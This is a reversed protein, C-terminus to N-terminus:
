QTKLPVIQAGMRPTAEYIGKDQDSFIAYHCSDSTDKLTFTYSTSDTYFQLRFGAPTPSVNLLQAFPRYKPQGTQPPVIVAEAFNIQQAMKLAQERRARQNPQESPGHLCQQAFASSAALGSLLTALAIQKVM